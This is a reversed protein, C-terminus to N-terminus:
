AKIRYANGEGRRWSRWSRWGVSTSVSILLWNNWCLELRSEGLSDGEKEESFGDGWIPGRDMLSTVDLSPDAAKLAM